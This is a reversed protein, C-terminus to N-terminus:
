SNATPEVLLVYGRQQQGSFCVFTVILMVTGTLGHHVFLFVMSGPDYLTIDVILTHGRYGKTHSIIVPM